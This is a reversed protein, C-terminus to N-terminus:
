FLFSVLWPNGINKLCHTHTPGSPFCVTHTDPARPRHVKSSLTYSFTVSVFLAHSRCAVLTPVSLAECKPLNRHTSISVEEASVASEYDGTALVAFRRRPVPVPIPARVHEERTACDRPCRMPSLRSLVLPPARRSEYRERM